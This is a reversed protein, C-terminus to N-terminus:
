SRVPSSSLYVSCIIRHVADGQSETALFTKRAAESLRTLAERSATTQPNKLFTELREALNEVNDVQTAMKNAKQFIFNPYPSRWFDTIPLHKLLEATAHLLLSSELKALTIDRSICLPTSGLTDTLTIPVKPLHSM